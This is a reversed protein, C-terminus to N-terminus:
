NLGIHILMKIPRFYEGVLNALFIKLNEIYLLYIAKVLYKFEM